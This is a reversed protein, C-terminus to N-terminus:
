PESDSGTTGGASIRAPAVVAATGAAAAAAAEAARKAEGLAARRRPFALILALSDSPVDEDLLSIIGYVAGAATRYLVYSLVFRMSNRFMALRLEFTEPLGQALRRQAVFLM